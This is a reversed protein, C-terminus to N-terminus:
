CNIMHVLEKIITDKVNTSYTIIIHRYEYKIMGWQRSNFRLTKVLSHNENIIM